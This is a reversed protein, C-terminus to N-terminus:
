AIVCTRSPTELMEPAL